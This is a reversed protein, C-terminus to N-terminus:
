RQSTHCAIWGSQAVLHSVRQDHEDEPLRDLIESNNLLLWREANERSYPLARDYWGGGQGLRAGSPTGALGPLIILDAQALTEAPLAPGPPCPIGRWGTVM